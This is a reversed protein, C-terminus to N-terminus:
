AAQRCQYVSVRGTLLGPNLLLKMLKRNRKRLHPVAERLILQRYTRWWIAPYLFPLMMTASKRRRNFSVNEIEFGCKRLGFEMTPFPLPHIHAMYLNPRQHDIPRPACDDFSTLLYNFRSELSHCNPTSIVIRGNPKVVRCCESLFHYHNEVHEIVEISVVVDFQNDDFPWRDALNASVCPIQGALFEDAAIDTATVDFGRDRAWVSFAGQGAGVDLLTGRDLKDVVAEVADHIGPMTLQQLAVEPAADQPTSARSPRRKTRSDAVISM